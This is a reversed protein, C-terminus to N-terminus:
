RRGFGQAVLWEAMSEFYGEAYPTDWPQGRMERVGGTEARKLNHNAEPFTVVTLDANPNTGITQHYLRSTARWDVNTDKEGFLALVPRDIGSLVQRFDPVYVQLGAEADVVFEGNEFRGQYAYFAQESVYGGWGMFDAFPDQSLTPRADLYDQYDGGQWVADFSRQWEDVLVETEDESRGELPFNSALLYRGNEKDDTGSASIWFAIEPAASMALPAIWGARSIGWLGIVETGPLNRDQLARVAAVVEDASSEVPQNIDFTGESEGCGPKDWVVVNLGLGAFHARLDYFWNQEVVKTEGYGHVLIVTAQPGPPADLLGVLRNGDAEFAFRGTEFDSARLSDQAQAAVGLPSLGIAILLFPLVRGKM